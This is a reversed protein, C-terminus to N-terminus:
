KLISIMFSIEEALQDATGDFGVRKFRINGKQDIIFKTPIGSVQYSSVVENKDDLLVNFSYKNKMIFDAANQKVNEVREWTDIFLFKVNPDSSYKNVAIQMGPMSALCPGCWTAWFDVIVIKDKLEALSVTKGELDTLSFNPAPVNILEKKLEEIKKQRAKDYIKEFYKDFNNESGNIKVFTQKLYDKMVPTGNGTSIYKELELKAQAYNENQILSGAYRENIESDKQEALNVAESLTKMGDKKNGLKLEISGFTDLAKALNLENEKKFEAPTQDEARKNINADLEQRALEVGKQALKLAIQLDGNKEYMSWALGNYQVAKANIFYKELYDKAKDFQGTKSYDGVLNNKMYYSYESVPFENMFKEIFSKKAEPDKLAKFESYKQNQTYIGNPYKELIQKKYPDTKDLLRLRTYWNIVASLQTENLALPDPYNDHLEQLILDKAKDKDAQIISAFYPNLYDNKLSPNVNFEEKFLKLAEGKDIDIGTVDGGYIIIYALGAKTGPVFNGNKDYLQIIYGKKDNNDKKDGAAFQLILGKTTDAVKFKTQWIGAKEQLVYENTSNLNIGYEYVLVKIDKVEAFESGAAKYTITIESGPMPKEPLYSFRENSGSCTIITNFLFLFILGTFLITVKKM